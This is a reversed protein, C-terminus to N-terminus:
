GEDLEAPVGMRQFDSVPNYLQWGNLQKCQVKMLCAPTSINSFPELPSTLQCLKDIFQKSEASDIVISLNLPCM